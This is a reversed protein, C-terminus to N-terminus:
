CDEEHETACLAKAKHAIFVRHWHFSSALSFVIYFCVFQRFRPFVGTVLGRSTKIQIQNTSFTFHRSNEPGAMVYLFFAFGLLGPDLEVSSQFNSWCM